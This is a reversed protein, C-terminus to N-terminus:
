RAALRSIKKISRRSMKILGRQADATSDSADHVVEESDSESEPEERRAGGVHAKALFHASNALKRSPGGAVEGSWILMSVAM